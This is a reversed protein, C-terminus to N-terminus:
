CLAGLQTDVRAEASIEIISRRVASSDGRCQLSPKCTTCVIQSMVDVINVFVHREGDQRRLEKSAAGIPQRQRGKAVTAALTDIRPPYTCMRCSGSPCCGATLPPCSPCASLLCAGEGGGEIAAGPYGCQGLCCRMDLHQISSCRARTWSVEHVPNASSFASPVFQCPSVLAFYDCECGVAVRQGWSVAEM